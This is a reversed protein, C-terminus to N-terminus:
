GSKAPTAPHSGLARRRVLEQASTGDQEADCQLRSYEDDTAYWNRQKAGDPRTKPRGRGRKVPPAPQKAKM